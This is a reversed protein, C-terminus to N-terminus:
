PWGTSATACLQPCPAAPPCTPDPDRPVEGRPIAPPDAPFLGERMGELRGRLIGADGYVRQRAALPERLADDHAHRRGGATEAQAAVAAPSLAARFEADQANMPVTTSLAIGVTAVVVTAIVLQTQLGLDRRM